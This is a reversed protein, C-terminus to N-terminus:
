AAKEMQEIMQRGIYETYAPPIAQTLTRPNTIWDIGMAARWEDLTGKGGGQGHVGFYYGEIKEGHRWGQVRGKHPIHEPQTLTFGRVEFWRHRIVRLGFMEGCLTVRRRLDAGPVNEIVSPLPVEALAERTAPILQPYGRGRSTSLPSAAQCPPSTHVADFERWHDTLFDLADAQHFEFPYEPQPKHDVGTVDWGSLAYGM